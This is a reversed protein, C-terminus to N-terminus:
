WSCLKGFVLELLQGQKSLYSWRGQFSFIDLNLAVITTGYLNGGVRAFDIDLGM